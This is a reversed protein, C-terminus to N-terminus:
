ASAPIRVPLIIFPAGQHYLRRQLAFVLNNHLLRSVM